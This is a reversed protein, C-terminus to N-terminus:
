GEQPEIDQKEDLHGTQNQDFDEDVLGYKNRLYVILEHYLSMAEDKNGLEHNKIRCILDRICM